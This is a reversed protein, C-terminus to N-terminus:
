DADSGDGDPDADTVDTEVADPDVDEVDMTLADGDVDGDVDRDVDGDTDGDVDGQIDPTDPDTDGSGDLPEPPADLFTDEPAPSADASTDEPPMNGGTDGPAMGSSDAEQRTDPPPGSADQPGNGTGPEIFADPEDVPNGVDTGASFCGGLGLAWALLLVFLLSHAALALRPAFTNCMLRVM